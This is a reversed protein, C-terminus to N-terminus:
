TLTVFKPKLSKKLNKEREGGKRAKLGRGKKMYKREKFTNKFPRSIM